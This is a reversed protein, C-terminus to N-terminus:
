TLDFLSKTEVRSRAAFAKGQITGHFDKEDKLDLGFAKENTLGEWIERCTVERPMWQGIGIKGTTM